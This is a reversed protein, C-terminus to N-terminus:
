LVVSKIMEEIVTANDLRALVLPGDQAIRKWIADTATNIPSNPNQGDFFTVVGDTIIWNFTHGASGGDLRRFNVSCVGSANSGFNRTLMKSAESVSKGFTTARGDKITAGSFCSEVVGGLNKMEGGTGRATVNYGLSRLFSAISCYTCNNKYSVDGLHPNVSKVIDSIGEPHALKKFPLTDDVGDLSGSLMGNASQKGVTTLNNLAGSKYLAYGGITVLAVGVVVAGIKIARKQKDSLGSKNVSADNNKTEKKAKVTWGGTGAARESSSHSSDDLPYPPGHRKGWRQGLIGHHYLESNTNVKYYM